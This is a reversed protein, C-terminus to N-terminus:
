HHTIADDRGVRRGGHEGREIVEEEEVGYCRAAAATAVLQCSTDQVRRQLGNSVPVVPPQLRPLSTV